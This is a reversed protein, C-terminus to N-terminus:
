QVPRLNSNAYTNPYAYAMVTGAGTSTLTNGNGTLDVVNSVSAGQSLEDFEYRCVLGNVIGHRAGAANYITLVETASLTRRYLAYQDVQMATVESAASDPFGNIYVQNLYGPQQTTVTTSAQIGNRYLTHNTGDYTYVIFVWVGNYGTM